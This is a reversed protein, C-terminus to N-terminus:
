GAERKETTSKRFSIAKEEGRLLRGINARHAIIIVVSICASAMTLCLVYAFSGNGHAALPSGAYDFFYLILFTYLPYATMGLVSGLSVIKKLAFIVLFTLFTPVFIRWDLIAILAATSVVGKGGKFSFYLPFIHGLVCGVGAAYKGIIALSVPAGIQGCAYVFIFYGVAISAACKLFDFLFTLAAPLKGVSRLVNTAGANGSGFKRIDEKKFAKTLIISFSISGFLYGAAAAVVAPLVLQSIYDM